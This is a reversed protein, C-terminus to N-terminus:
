DGIKEIGAVRVEATMKETHLTIRYNPSIFTTGSALFGYEVPYGEVTLTGTVDSKAGEGETSRSVVLTGDEGVTYRKAPIRSVSGSLTGFVSGDETYFIDGSTLEAGATERFGAIEFTVAYSGKEPVGKPLIGERGVTLRLALGAACLLVLLVAFVDLASPAGRKKTEKEM